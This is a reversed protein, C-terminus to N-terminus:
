SLRLETTLGRWRHSEFYLGWFPDPVHIPDFIEHGYADGGPDHLPSQAAGHDQTTEPSTTIEVVAHVEGITFCVRQRQDAHVGVAAGVFYRSDALEALLEFLHALPRHGLRWEGFRLVRHEADLLHGGRFM